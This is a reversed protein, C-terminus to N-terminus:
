NLHALLTDSKHAWEAKLISYVAVDKATGDKAVVEGRLVGDLEAGLGSIMMRHSTNDALSRMQITNAGAVEIGFAMLMAMMEVFVEMDDSALWINGIELRKNARDISSFGIWGILRSDPTQIAYTLSLGDAQRELLYSIEGQMDHRVPRRCGEPMRTEIKAAQALQAAHAHSLPLLTLRTGCLKRPSPWM